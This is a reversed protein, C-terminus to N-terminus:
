HPRYKITAKGSARVPLFLGAGTVGIQGTEVRTVDASLLFDGERRGGIAARAKGLVRAYDPAFDHRLGEAISNRVDTDNFVAALLNVTTSDTDAVLQVDRAEVLQSGPRNVPVATLWIRGKTTLGGYGRAKAQADVGIALRGSTTAYVTVRGFRADVPGIGTLTIGKAARKRLARQVVPELQHYDALVPVFFRLGREPPVPLPPPLATPTPAPPRPGVFTETLAEAALTLQLERGNVRYGGFGLRRPTVRMWAPPNDRNLSIVTFAQRWVDSLRARLHLQDLQRPLTQELKAIIPRLRDDAKDVFTIRKGLFDIGPPTAWDYEIDVKATPQWNGVISLRAVAHVTADGTATKSAFGGVKQASIVAHIPMTVLLRDGRGSLRIRGRTVAGVVQCGLRPLVRLKAFGLNIRQPPVCQDLHQDITYLQRPLERELAAELEGLPAAVPVVITSSESPLQAPTEVRPPAPTHTTRHCGALLTPLLLPLLLSFRM